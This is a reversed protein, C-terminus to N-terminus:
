LREKTGVGVHANQDGCVGGTFADVELVGVQHDLACEKLLHVVADLVVQLGDGGQQPKLGVIGSVLRRNGHQIFANIPHQRNGSDM